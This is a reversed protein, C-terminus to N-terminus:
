IIRVRVVRQWPESGMDAGAWSNRHYNCSNKQFSGWHLAAAKRPDAALEGHGSGVREQTNAGQGGPIGTRFQEQKGVEQSRPGLDGRPRAQQMSRSMTVIPSERGEGPPWKQGLNLLEGKYLHAGDRM